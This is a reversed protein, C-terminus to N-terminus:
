TTQVEQKQPLANYEVLDNRSVIIGIDTAALLIWRILDRGQIPGTVDFGHYTVLNGDKDRYTSENQSAMKTILKIPLEDITEDMSRYLVQEFDLEADVITYEDATTELGTEKEILDGTLCFRVSRNKITLEGNCCIHVTETKSLELPIEAKAQFTKIVQQDLDMEKDLLKKGTYWFNEVKYEIEYPFDVLTVPFLNLIDSVRNVLEEAQKTFLGKKPHAFFVSGNRNALYNSRLNNHEPIANADDFKLVAQYNWIESWGEALRIEEMVITAQFGGM